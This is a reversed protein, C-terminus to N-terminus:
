AGRVHHRGEKGFILFAVIIATSFMVATFIWSSVALQLNGSIGHGSTCGQAIRAGFLMIAAGFFAGAFRLGSSEGFKWSWLNPVTPHERDGSLKSSLVAGLFVGLVLMWGWDIKPSKGEGALASAYESSTYFAPVIFKLLMAATYEFPTTIGLLEDSSWLAVWSLMGLGVGVTWPSWAIKKLM